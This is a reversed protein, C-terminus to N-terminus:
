QLLFEDFPGQRNKGATRCRLFSGDTSVMVAGDRDTRLLFCPHASFRELVLPHPLRVRNLRGCSVAAVAPQVAQLFPSSSSSAGGHHPVLLVDSRLNAGQEVLLREVRQSIDAPMLISRKGYSIRLVLCDDNVSNESRRGTAETRRGTQPNLVDIRVGHIIRASCGADVPRLPIKRSTTLLRFREGSEGDDREGNTWIEGVPFEELVTLLGNMHDPHPHTLVALDIKGIRERRLFPLLIHRGSDFGDKEAGGGDVLVTRGGPLRLLAASGHGVDFFTAELHDNLRDRLVNWYLLDAAFFVTLALFAWRYGATTSSPRGEDPLAKGRELWRVIVVFFAYYGAIEIPTPTGVTFSSWPLSAFYRVMSMSIHVLFAVVSILLSTLPESIPVLVAIGMSLPIAAFGLIPVVAVNAILVVASLRNFHHAILPLTGATAVLTVAAFLALRASWRRWAQDPGLPSSSSSPKLYSLVAPTAFLISAVAAFSLQFSVDFLSPPFAALILIGAFALSNFLDRERGLLLACLFTVAMITARVVSIGMGALLAFLLVPPLALAYSLRVADVRLLVATSISLLWRALFIWIVAVIGVNFGSIAIIHSTGTRNFLDVIDRPIEQQGGLIMASILEREPSAAHRHITERIAERFGELAFLWGNAQNRRVVAVGSAEWVFARASIGAWQLMEARKFIGPNSLGELPKLRTEFRVVDGYRWPGRGAISLRIRGRSPELLGDRVASQLDVTLETRDPWREPARAVLGQLRLVQDSPWEPILPASSANWSSFTWGVGGLLFFGVLLLSWLFERRFRLALVLSVILLLFSFLLSSPSFDFRHAALIGCAFALSIPM